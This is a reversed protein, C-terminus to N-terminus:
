LNDEWGGCKLYASSDSSAYYVSGSELPMLYSMVIANTNYITVAMPPPCAGTPNSYANSPAAMSYNASTTGTQGLTLDVACATPPAFTSVAIATWTPVTVSGSIGSIVPRMTTTNSGALPVFRARRGYQLTQMLYKSGSSDTLVAGVRASYTYGSPLTPATASLSFLGAVTTGNYIVYVYYWTSGAVSGTDLGNAGSASIAPSVSVSKALYTAGGANSLVVSNATIVSTSNSAGQSAIKLGAYSGTVPNATALGQVFATTALKVTNDTSTQTVGFSGTMALWVTGDSRLNLSQGAIVTMTTSGSGLPGGFNGSGSNFTITATSNNQFSVNSGSVGSPAPLTITFATTGTAEVLTNLQASTLTTTGSLSIPAPRAIGGIATTFNTVFNTLNGDDLVSAALVNSMFTAVGASVFSSQRLAKNFKASSALGSSFGNTVTSDSVWATQSEVNAGGGTAFPLFDVTVTM